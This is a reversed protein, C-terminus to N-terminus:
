LGRVHIEIQFNQYLLLEVAVPLIYQMLSGDCYLFSAIRAGNIYLSLSLV